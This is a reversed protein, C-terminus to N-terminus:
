YSSSSSSPLGMNPWNLKFEKRFCNPPLSSRLEIWSSSSYDSCGSPSLSLISLCICSKLIPYSYVYYCTSRSLRVKSFYMRSPLGGMWLCSGLYLVSSSFYNALCYVSPYPTPKLIISFIPKLFIELPRPFSYVPIWLGTYALWLVAKVM